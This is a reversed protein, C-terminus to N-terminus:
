PQHNQVDALICAFDDGGHQRLEVGENGLYWRAEHPASNPHPNIDTTFQVGRNGGIPGAYAKVTPTMGGRPTRGWIEGSDVQQVADAVTQTTSEIRHFPGLKM